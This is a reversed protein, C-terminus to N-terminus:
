DILDDLDITDCNETSIMITNTIAVVDGCFYVYYKGGKQKIEVTESM